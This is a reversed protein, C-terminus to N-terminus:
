RAPLRSKSRYWTEKAYPLLAADFYVVHMGWLAEAKVVATKGSDGETNSKNLDRDADLVGVRVEWIAPVDGRGARGRVYSGDAKALVCRITIHQGSKALYVITEVPLM